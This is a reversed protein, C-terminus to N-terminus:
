LIVICLVLLYCFCLYILDCYPCWAFFCTIKEDVDSVAMLPGVIEQVDIVHHHREDGELVFLVVLNKKLEKFSMYEKQHMFITAM